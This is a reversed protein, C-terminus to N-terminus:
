YVCRLAYVRSGYDKLKTLQDQLPDMCVYDGDLAQVILVYHYNGWGHMRVRAIPYKGEMLYSDIVEGSVEQCVDVQCGATERLRDWQINGEGDYVHASSFAANLTSPTEELGHTMDLASAICSVLCGSSQLSYSSDGLYEEGWRPDDQRFTVISADPLIVQGALVHTSKRFRLLCFLGGALILFFLVTM